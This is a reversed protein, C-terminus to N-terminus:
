WGSGTSIKMATGSARASLAPTFAKFGLSVDVTSTGEPIEGDHYEFRDECACLAFMALSAAAALIMNLYTHLRKM